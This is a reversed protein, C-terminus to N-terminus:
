RRKVAKSRRCPWFILGLRTRRSHFCNPNDSPWRGLLFRRRPRPRDRLLGLKGVMNPGVVKELVGTDVALLQPQQGHDILESALAQGNFDGAGEISPLHDSDQFDEDSLVPAGCNKRLSLPGSNM